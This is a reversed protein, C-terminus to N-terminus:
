HVFDPRRCIRHQTDTTYCCKLGRDCNGDNKCLQADPNACFRDLESAQWGTKPCSGPRSTPSTDEDCCSYEGFELRKECFERCNPVELRTPRRCPFVDRAAGGNALCISSAILVASLTYLSLM